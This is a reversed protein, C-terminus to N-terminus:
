QTLPYKRALEKLEAISLLKLVSRDFNEQSSYDFQGGSPIREKIHYDEELVDLLVTDIQGPEPPLSKELKKIRSIIDKLM